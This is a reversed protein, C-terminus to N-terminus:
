CFIIEFLLVKIVRWWTGDFQHFPAHLNNAYTSSRDAPKGNRKASSNTIDATTRKWVAQNFVCVIPHLGVTAAIFSVSTHKIFMTYHCAFSLCDKEQSIQQMLYTFTFFSTMKEDCHGFCNEAQSGEALARPRASVSRSQMRCSDRCLSRCLSLSVAASVCPFVDVERKRKDMGRMISDTNVTILLLILTNCLSINISFLSLRTSFHSITGYLLAHCLFPLHLNFSLYFSCYLSSLSFSTSYFIFHSIIKCLHRVCKKLYLHSALLQQIVILISFYSKSNFLFKSRSVVGLDRNTKISIEVIESSLNLWNIM